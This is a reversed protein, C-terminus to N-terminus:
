RAPLSSRAPARAAAHPRVPTGAAQVATTFPVEEKAPGSAPAAPAMAPEFRRYASKGTAKAAYMATDAHALLEDTTDGPVAVAVGISAGVLIPEGEFTIPQAVADSIREGVRTVMHDPGASEMIVVFDDSGLRCVTDGSRLQAQMRAATVQLVHDGADSGYTDNCLKFDDLDVYLVAVRRGRARGRDLAAGLMREAEARNPLGTLEDLGVPTIFRQRRRNTLRRIARRTMPMAAVGIAVVCAAGGAIILTRTGPRHSTARRGKALKGTWAFARTKGTAKTAKGTAKTAAKTAKGTAKPAKETTATTTTRALGTIKGFTTTRARM